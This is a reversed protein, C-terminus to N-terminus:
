NWPGCRVVNVSIETWGLLKCAALRRAGALLRGNEDVTIPNLLGIDEISAALASLDGMDRRHRTGIVIDAIARTAGAIAAPRALPVTRRIPQAV